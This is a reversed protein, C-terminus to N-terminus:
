LDDWGEPFTCELGYDDIDATGSPQEKHGAMLEGSPSLPGDPAGASATQQEGEGDTRSGEGGKPRTPDPRPYTVSRDASVNEAPPRSNGNMTPSNHSARTITARDDRLPQANSAHHKETAPRSKQRDMYVAQNKAKQARRKATKVPDERYDWWDHFWWGNGDQDNEWLGVQVLLDALRPTGTFSKLMHQPVHGGTDQKEVGACWSASLIWLGVARGRDTLPLDMVKPHKHFNDDTKHWM